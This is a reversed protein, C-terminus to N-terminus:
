ALAPSRESLSGDAVEVLKAAAERSGPVHDPDTASVLAQGRDRLLGVLRERREGDLESTVDDLLMLPPRGNEALLDREAFLLALLGLRQQGQSGFSRLARGDLELSLDDRHPGHTTFGREVDHARRERLETALADADAAPSRSRYRVAALGSLGLDGARAAFRPAILEVAASRDHRLAVGWRALQADWPELDALRAMGRRIRGILANRQGLARSYVIRSEGRAPWLAAVFGDLHSRRHAPVGKVLSLRDPAFVAVSPRPVTAGGADAGVGDVRFRKREGPEFAAELLHAGDEAVARQEVRAAPAGHRVVDRDRATRFSRATLGFYVAELLNTKGAGNPGTIVTLGEAPALEAHRYNRFDRLEVRAIRM